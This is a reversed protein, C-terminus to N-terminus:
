HEEHKMTSISMFVMTLMSFILAQVVAKILELFLFPLPGLFAFSYLALSLMFEGSFINGFLRFSLSIIRTLESIIELLGVFLYVPNLSFFKILYGKFGLFQISMLNTAFVSILALALTVNLDSTAARFIPIHENGTAPTLVITQYGPLLGLLNSIFIFLFFSVFWPFITEARKGTGAVDEIFGYLVDIFSEIINQLKGPILSIKKRLLFAISLILIDALVTSTVTNTIPFGLFHTLVEAKLPVM